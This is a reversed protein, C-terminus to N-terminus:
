ERLHYKEQSFPNRDIWEPVTYDPSLYDDGSCNFQWLRLSEEMDIQEQPSVGFAKCFGDRAVDSIEKPDRKDIL